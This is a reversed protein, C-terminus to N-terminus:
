LKSPTNGGNTCNRKIEISFSTKLPKFRGFPVSKNEPFSGIHCKCRVGVRGKFAQNCIGFMYKFRPLARGTSRTSVQMFITQHASRLSHYLFHLHKNQIPNIWAENHWPPFDMSVSTHFMYQIWKHQSKKSLCLHKMKNKLFYIKSPLRQVPKEGKGAM